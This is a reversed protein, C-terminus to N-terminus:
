LKEVLTSKQLHFMEIVKKAESDIQKMQHLKELIKLVMIISLGAIETLSLNEVLVKNFLATM